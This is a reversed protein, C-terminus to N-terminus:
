ELNKLGNYLEDFSKGAACRGFSLERDEGFEFLFCKTLEEVTQELASFFQTYAFESEKSGEAFSATILSETVQDLPYLKIHMLEHVIVEELNQRKPNAANLMLIAKRDDCDIKFDGTKRWGPDDILELKVDWQPSIRLKKCYKEFLAELEEASRKGLEFLYVAAKRKGEAYLENDEPIDATEIFRGGANLCTKASAANDPDCTIYLRDMGHKRALRFLLRCARAAYGHGRYAEDVGYGINGGTYTKDNHGIRLDCAGIRAGDELCIDFYYAPLWRKEPQAGATRVLRLMIEGDKLDSTDYFVIGNDM